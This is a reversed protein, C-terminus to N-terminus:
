VNRIQVDAHAAVQVVTGEELLIERQVGVVPMLISADELPSM